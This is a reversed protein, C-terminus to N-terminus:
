FAISWDFYLEWTEKKLISEFCKVAIPEGNISELMARSLTKDNADEKVIHLHVKIINPQETIEKDTIDQVYYNSDSPNDVRDQPSPMAVLETGDAATQSGEGDFKIRAPTLNDMLDCNGDDYVLQALNIRFQDCIVNSDDHLLQFMGNEDKAYIKLRGKPQANDNLKMKGRRTLQLVGNM